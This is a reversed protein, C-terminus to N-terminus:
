KHTQRPIQETTINGILSVLKKRHTLQVLILSEQILDTKSVIFKDVCFDQISSDDYIWNESKLKLRVRLFNWEPYIINTRLLIERHLQERDTGKMQKFM